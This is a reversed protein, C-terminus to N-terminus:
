SSGSRTSNIDFATARLVQIPQARLNGAICTLLGVPDRLDRVNNGTPGIVIADGISELLPFTDFQSLAARPILGASYPGRCQREM